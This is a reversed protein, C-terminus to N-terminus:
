DEDVSVESLAKEDLEMVGEDLNVKRIVRKLAPFLFDKAGDRKVRYVDVGGTQIVEVLTGLTGTETRVSLGELDAIFWAGEPLEIADKRGVCLYCDKLKEAAERTYCGEVYAYVNSEDMRNVSIKCDTYSGNQEIFVNKLNKYRSVDDTLPQIKLEGKIGQPRLILGIRLYDRKM